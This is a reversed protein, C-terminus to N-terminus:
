GVGEQDFRWLCRWRWRLGRVKERENEEM